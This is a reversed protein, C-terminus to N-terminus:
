FVEVNDMTVFDCIPLVIGYLQVLTIGKDIIAKDCRLGRIREDPKAWIYRSGDQLIIKKEIPSNIFQKVSDKLKNYIEKMKNNVKFVNDSFICTIGKVDESTYRDGYAFVDMIHKKMVNEYKGYSIDKLLNYSDELIYHNNECYITMSGDDMGTGSIECDYQKLLNILSERFNLMKLDIADM